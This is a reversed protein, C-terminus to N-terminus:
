RKTYSSITELIGQNGLLINFKDPEELILRILEPYLVSDIACEVEDVAPPFKRTSMARVTCGGKCYVYWDCSNCEEAKKPIFYTRQNIAEKVIKILNKDEDINGISEKPTDTLECPYIRGEMDFVIMKRGGNCGKSLCIDSYKLYLLNNLKVNINYELIPYGDIRLDIIKHLIRMEIMSIEEKSLCLEECCTFKSRHVFNFKVRTLKLEKAFYDLIEEIHEANNRTITTITGLRLGYKELATRINQSVIDHTDQGSILLRQSNHVERTGDISVGLGIQNEYM